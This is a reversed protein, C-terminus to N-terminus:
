DTVSTGDDKLRSWSFGVLYNTTSCVSVNSTSVMDASKVDRVFYASATQADHSDSIRTQTADKNMLTTTLGLTVAGIVLPMVVVVVLLEVLTFGDDSRDTRKMM